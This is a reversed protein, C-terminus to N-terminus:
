SAPVGNTCGQVATSAKRPLCKPKAICLITVQAGREDASLYLGLIMPDRTPSHHLQVPRPARTYRLTGDRQM